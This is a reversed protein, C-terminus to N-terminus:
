VHWAARRRAACRDRERQDAAAGDAIQDVADRERYPTTSKMSMPKPSERHGVNLTASMATLMPAKRSAQTSHPSSVSVRPRATSARRDSDGGVRALERLERCADSMVFAERDLFPRTNQVAATETTTSSTM